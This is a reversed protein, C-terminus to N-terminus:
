NPLRKHLEVDSMAGAMSIIKEAEESTFPTGTDPHSSFIKHRHLFATFFADIEKKLAEKYVEYKLTVEIKQGPTLDVSIQRQRYTSYFNIKDSDTIQAIVQFLLCREMKSQYKFDARETKEDDLDSESLGHKKLLDDLLRRANEQENGTGLM